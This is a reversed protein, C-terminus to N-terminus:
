EARRIEELLPTPDSVPGGLSRLQAIVAGLPEMDLPAFSEMVFRRREWEGFGNRVYTGIGTVRVKGQFLHAAIGRGQERTATCIHVRDRDRLYVSITEDRGGIQIVEGDITAAEIIPGATKDLDRERGPFKIVKGSPSVLKGVANDAYLKENLDDFAKRLAGRASRTEIMLLRRDVRVVAKADIVQLLDASGEDVGIFHVHEKNSFLEGLDSLYEALRALPLTQPTFVDIIFRYEQKAM